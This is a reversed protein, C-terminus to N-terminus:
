FLKERQLELAIPKLVNQCEGLLPAGIAQTEVVPRNAVVAIWREPVSFGAAIDGAVEVIRIPVVDFEAARHVRDFIITGAVAGPLAAFAGSM